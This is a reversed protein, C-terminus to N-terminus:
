FFNRGIVIEPQGKRKRHENADRLSYLCGCYEQRYFHETRAIRSMEELAGGSRWHRAWYTLGPYKKAATRGSRDVQAMDKWRAIGNTTAFVPFGNEHAYLATRELRIDFCLSCRRGREPERELGKVREFWADTDHDADIFPLGRKRAFAIVSKKREEYEERPHINPNYFFLAPSVKERLLTEIITASCVACCVHLLLTKTKM